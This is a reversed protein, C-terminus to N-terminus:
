RPSDGGPALLLRLSAKAYAWHAYATSRQLGLAEAAEEVSMGAFHRLKVLEAAHPDETALRDLADDIALLQHDHGINSDSFAPGSSIAGHVIPARAFSALAICDLTSRCKGAARTQERAPKM